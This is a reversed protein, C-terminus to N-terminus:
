NAQIMSKRILGTFHKRSSGNFSAAFNLSSDVHDCLIITYRVFRIRMTVDAGTGPRNFFEPDGKSPGSEPGRASALLPAGLLLLWSTLPRRPVRPAREKEPFSQIRSRPSILGVRAVM